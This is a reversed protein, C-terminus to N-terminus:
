SSSVFSRATRASARRPPRFATSSPATARTSFSSTEKTMVWSLTSLLRNLLQPSRRHAHVFPVACVKPLEAYLDSPLMKELAHLAWHYTVAWGTTRGQADPQREFVTTKVGRRKLGQAVVLGVLGAGVILM